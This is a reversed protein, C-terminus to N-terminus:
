SIDCSVKDPMTNTPIKITKKDDSYNNVSNNFFTQHDEFISFKKNGKEIKKIHNGKIVFLTNL